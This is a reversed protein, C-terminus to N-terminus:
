NPLRSHSEPSPLAAQTSAHRYVAFHPLEPEDARVWGSNLYNTLAQSVEAVKLDYPDIAILTEGTPLGSAFQAPGVPYGAIERDQISHDFTYFRRTAYFSSLPNLPFYAVGPHIRDFAAAEATMSAESSRARDIQHISRYCFLLILAFALLHLASATPSNPRWSDIRTFSTTVALLLFFDAIALHNQDGGVTISAKFLLPFLVFAIIAFVLWRNDRVLQRLANPAATWRGRLSLCIWVCFLALFSLFARGESGSHIGHGVFHYLHNGMIGPRDHLRPMLSMIPQPPRHSALTFLNFYLNTTPRFLLLVTTVAAISWGALYLCYRFASRGGDALYVFLLMAVPLAAFTQKATVALVAFLASLVLRRTSAPRALLLTGAFTGCAMGIPDAHAVFVCSMVTTNMAALWFLELAFLVPLVRFLSAATAASNGASDPVAARATFVHALMLSALLLLVSISVAVRVAAVPNSAFTAPWYLIHSLPTHLTGLIPGTAYRGPYLPVGFYLGFTRALRIENWIYHDASVIKGAAEVLCLLLLPPVLFARLREYWPLAPTFRLLLAGAILSIPALLLINTGTTM